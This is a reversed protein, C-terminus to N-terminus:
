FVLLGTFSRFFHGFRSCILALRSGIKKLRTVISCHWFFTQVFIFSRFPPLWAMIHCPTFNAIQGLNFLQSIAVAAFQEIKGVFSSKKSFQHGSTTSLYHIWKRVLNSGEWELFHPIKLLFQPNVNILWNENGFFEIIKCYVGSM